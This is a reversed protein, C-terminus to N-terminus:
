IGQKSVEERQVSVTKFGLNALGAIEHHHGCSPSKYNTKTNSGKRSAPRPKQSFPRVIIESTEEKEKERTTM